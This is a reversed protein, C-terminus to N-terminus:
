QGSAAYADAVRRAFRRIARNADAWTTLGVYADNLTPTEYDYEVEAIVEGSARRIVARLDAGGLSISRGYDLSPQNVLQQMTPKNPNADIITLDIFIQGGPGLQAGAGALAEAVHQSLENQLYLGEREGLEENLEEQFEPSFAVPGVTVTTASATQAFALALLAALPIIARM